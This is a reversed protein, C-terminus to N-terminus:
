HQDGRRDPSNAYVRAQELEAPNPREGGVVVAVTRAIIKLDLRLSWHDVYWVDLVIRDEWPLEVNGNVQAWGTLGPRVRLRRRQFDSYGALDSVLAPRPGVVSMDGRLINILQPLEDVKTRRIVRGTRTVLDNDARVQGVEEPVLGHRRMSRFKLVTFPQGDRGARPQSFLVPRGDEAWICLAALLQIPATVAFALGALVVDLGRKV